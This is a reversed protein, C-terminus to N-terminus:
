SMGSCSSGLSFPCYHLIQSHPKLYEPAKNQDLTLKLFNKIRYTNTEKNKFYLHFNYRTRPQAPEVHFHLASLIPVYNISLLHEVMLSNEHKM